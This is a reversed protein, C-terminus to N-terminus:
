VAYVPADGAALREVVARSLEMRSSAEPALAVPAGAQTFSQVQEITLHEGDLLTMSDITPGAAPPQHASRHLLGPSCNPGRILASIHGDCNHPARAHAEGRSGSEAEPDCCLKGEISPRVPKRGAFPSGHEFLENLAWLSQLAVAIGWKRWFTGPEKLVEVCLPM